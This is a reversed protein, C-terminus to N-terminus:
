YLLGEKSCGSRGFVVELTCGSNSADICKGSCPSPRDVQVSANSTCEIQM